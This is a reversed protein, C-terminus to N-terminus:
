TGASANVDIGRVEYSHIEFQDVEPAFVVPHQSAIKM